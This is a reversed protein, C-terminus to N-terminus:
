PARTAWRQRMREIRERIQAVYEPHDPEAAELWQRGAPTAYTRAAIEDLQAETLPPRMM